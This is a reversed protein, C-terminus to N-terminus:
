KAEYFDDFEISNFATLEKNTKYESYLEEAALLMSQKEEAKRIERMTKEVILIRKTIPLRSIENLIETTTM